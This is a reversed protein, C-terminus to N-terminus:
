LSAAVSLNIPKGRAFAIADPTYRGSTVLIAANAQEGVMAGYLERVPHADDGKM